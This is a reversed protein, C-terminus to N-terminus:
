DILGFSFHCLQYSELVFLFSLLVETNMINEFTQKKFVYNTEVWFMELAKGTWHIKYSFCFIESLKMGLEFANRFVWYLVNRCNSKQM